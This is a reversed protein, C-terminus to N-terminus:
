GREKKVEAFIVLKKKGQCISSMIKVVCLFALIFFWGSALTCLKQGHPSCCPRIRYGPVTTCPNIPDGIPTPCLLQFEM